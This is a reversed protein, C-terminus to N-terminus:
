GRTRCTDKENKGQAQAPVEVIVSTGVGLKSEITIRGGILEAREYMGYLGLQSKSSVCTLGSDQQIDFGRGDDEVIAVVSSDRVEMLVSIKKAQAHKVVNTMAEQVIRYLAIETEPSLWRQDFGIAQFDTKLRYKRAYEGIYQELVKILGLDDLSSPRLELALNHVEELTQAVLQRMDAIRQQIAQQSAGELTKLSLMLSTLSQGTQDHLERAIRKREAEQVSIIEKLVYGRMEEKHKLEDWLNMNEIAVGMQYGIAGLLHINEVTFQSPESGVIHLLGLVQSKSILPVTVHCRLVEGNALKHHLIPCTGGNISVVIPLKRNIAERCKCGSFHIHALKQVVIPSLGTHCVTVAQDTTDTLVSVWGAKLNIFELIKMLSYRMTDTLSRSGSVETAIANLASLELNRRLLEVQFAESEKHSKALSETMTNFAEGLRGIEDLAWVPAKRQLDGRTIAKVAEVLHKIPRTLVSTLSYSAVLGILSLLGTIILWSRTTSTVTEYLLDTSMGIRAIGARGGFVPVAIDLILGENTDLRELRFSDDAETQNVEALGVPIGGSFSHSLVNGDPSLSLAYRVTENNEVTNKLLQYLDFSNSTLILDTSRAALDRAIAVGQKELEDTLTTTLSNRVQFTIALGFILILVVVIGM